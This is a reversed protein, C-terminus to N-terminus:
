RATFARPDALDRFPLEWIVIAGRLPAAQEDFLPRFSALPGSGDVSLDLVPCDSAQTLLTALSQGRPRSYSTGLLVVSEVCPATPTSRRLCYLDEEAPHTRFFPRNPLALLHQLDGPADPLRGAPVPVVVEGRWVRATEAAARSLGLPTWHTDEYAFLVESAAREVFLRQLAVVDVQDDRLVKVFAEYAAGTRSGDCRAADPLGCVQARISVDTALSVSLKTPVPLVLVRAAGGARLSRIHERVVETNRVILDDVRATGPPELEREAALFLERGHRTSTAVLVADSGRREGFLYLLGNMPVGLARVGPANNEFLRRLRAEMRSPRAGARPDPALFTASWFTALLLAATTTSIRNM